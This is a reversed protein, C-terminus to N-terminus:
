TKRLLPQAHCTQAPLELDTGHRQAGAPLAATPVGRRLPPKQAFWHYTEKKKHYSANDQIVFVRHGRRYFATAVVQDLVGCLNGLIAIIAIVVLLEILTFGARSGRAASSQPQPSFVM